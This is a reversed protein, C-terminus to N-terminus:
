LRLAVVNARRYREWGDGDPADWQLSEGAQNLRTHEEPTVWCKLILADFIELLHEPSTAPGGALPAFLTNLRPDAKSPDIIEVAIRKLPLVHEVCRRKIDIALAAETAYTVPIARDLPSLLTRLKAPYAGSGKTHLNGGRALHPRAENEVLRYAAEAIALRRESMRATYRAVGRSRLPQATRALELAGEDTPKASM